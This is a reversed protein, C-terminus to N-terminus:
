GAARASAYPAFLRLDDVQLARVAFVGQVVDIVCAARTRRAWDLGAFRNSM